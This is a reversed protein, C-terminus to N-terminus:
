LSTISSISYKYSTFNNEIIIYIIIKLLLYNHSNILHHYVFIYSYILNSYSIDSLINDFKSSNSM